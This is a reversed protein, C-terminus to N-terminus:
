PVLVSLPDNKVQEAVAKAIAKAQPDTTSAALNAAVLQSLTNVRTELTSLKEVLQADTNKLQELVITLNATTKVLELELNHVRILDATRDEPTNSTVAHQAKGVLHWGGGGAGIIMAALLVSRFRLSLHSFSIKIVGNEDTPPNSSSM